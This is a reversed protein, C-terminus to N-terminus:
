SPSRRRRGPRGRCVSRPSPAQRDRRASCRRRGSWGRRSGRGRSRGRRHAARVRSPRHGRRSRNAAAARWQGATLEADAAESREGRHSPHGLAAGFRCLVGFPRKEGAEFPCVHRMTLRVGVPKPRMDRCRRRRLPVRSGYPVAVVRDETVRRVIRDPDLFREPPMRAAVAEAQHARRVAGRDCAESPSIDTRSTLVPGIEGCAGQRRINRRCPEAPVELEDLEADRGLSAPVAEALRQM